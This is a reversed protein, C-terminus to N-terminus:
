SEVVEAKHGKATLTVGDKTEVASITEIIVGRWAANDFIQALANPLAKLALVEVSASWASPDGSGNAHEVSM